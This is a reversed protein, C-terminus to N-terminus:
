KVDTPTGVIAPMGGAPAAAVAATGVDQSVTVADPKAFVWTLLGMVDKLWTPAKTQYWTSSLLPGFVLKKVMMFGGAAVFAIGSATYLLQWHWTGGAATATALAGGLSVIFTTLVGGVDSHVFAEAKGAPAYRKVLAVAVILSLAFAAIWHGALAAEYVPRALDLLSGGDPELAAAAHAVGLFSILAIGVLCAMFVVPSLIKRM